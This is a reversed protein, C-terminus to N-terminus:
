KQTFYSFRTLFLKQRALSPNLKKVELESPFEFYVEAVPTHDNLKSRVVDHNHSSLCHLEGLQTGAGPGASPFFFSMLVPRFEGCPILRELFLNRALVAFHASSGSAQEHSILERVSGGLVYGLLGITTWFRTHRGAGAIPYEFKDQRHCTDWLLM